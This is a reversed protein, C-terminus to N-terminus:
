IALDICYNFWKSYENTKSKPYETERMKDIIYKVVFNNIDRKFDFLWGEDDRVMIGVFKEELLKLLEDKNTEFIMTAIFAYDVLNNYNNSGGHGGYGCFEIAVDNIIDKLYIKISEMNNLDNKLFNKM